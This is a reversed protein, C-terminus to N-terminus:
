KAQLGQLKNFKRSMLLMLGLLIVGLSIWQSPTLAGWLGRIDDGRLVEIGFRLLGYGIFYVSFSKLSARSKLLYFSIIFLGLSEILQTPHRNAGHLHIGWWASTESGYCCGALLCGIRGIAHGLTLAPLMAWLNQLTLPFKLLKYLGLFVLAFLLGGYFVFGGGTWFSPEFLLDNKNNPTTTFYFFLKSGIWSSLFIGWFLLQGYIPSIQVRSFFVQYAVGWGLGMLLPYSYLILDHNQFLIPLM